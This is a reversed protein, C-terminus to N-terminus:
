GGLLLEGGPGIASNEVEFQSGLKNLFFLGDNAAVPGDMALGVLSTFFLILFRNLIAKTFTSM